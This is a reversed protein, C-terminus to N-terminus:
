LLLHWSRLYPVNADKLWVTLTKNGPYDLDVSSYVEIIVKLAKTYSMLILTSLVAIPNHGILKSVTISYRSSLIILSIIFWVYLPFAFQLWTQAYATMGDYFCTQIGLDLNLWAIFVTLVNRANTPFVLNRNAQVINAYLIVSNLMGTAVTLRLFSLFVVLAIGAAAFPALLALYSNSCDQCKSSGLMLSYGDVCGGCLIGRRNLACQIDLNDLSIYVETQTKCYEAPCTKYLIMGQYTGNSYYLASLWLNSDSSKIIYSKSFEDTICRVGGYEELRHNCVCSELDDSQVFPHPCPLLTVEIVSQASQIDICSGKTTLRLEDHELSSYFNYELNTCGDSLTQIVQNLHIRANVGTVGTVRASTTGEQITAEVPVIFRQGRSIRIKRTTQCTAYSRDCFCLIGYPESTVEKTENNGSTINIIGRKTLFNYPIISNNYTGNIHLTCIDLFGGYLFSGERGAFDFNSTISGVDYVKENGLFLSTQDQFKHM